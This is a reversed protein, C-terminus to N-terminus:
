TEAGTVRSFGNHAKVFEVITKLSDSDIKNKLDFEFETSNSWKDFNKGGIQLLMEYPLFCVRRGYFSVGHPLYWAFDDVEGIDLEIGLSRIFDIAEQLELNKKNRVASM